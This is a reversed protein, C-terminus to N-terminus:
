AKKIEMTLFRKNEKSEQYTIDVWMRGYDCNFELTLTNLEFPIWLNSNVQDIQRFEGHLTNENLSSFRIGDIDDISIRKLIQNNEYIDIFSFSALFFRNNDFQLDNYEKDQFITTM